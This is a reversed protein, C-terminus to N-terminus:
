ALGNLWVGANGTRPAQLGLHLLVRQVQEAAGIDVPGQRCNRRPSTSRKRNLSDREM